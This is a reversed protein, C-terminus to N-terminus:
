NFIIIGVVEPAAFAEKITFRSFDKYHNGTVIWNVMKKKEGKKLFKILMKFEGKTYNGKQNGFYSSIKSTLKM